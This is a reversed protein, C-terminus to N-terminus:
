GVFDQAPRNRNWRVDSGLLFFIHPRKLIAVKIELEQPSIRYLAATRKSRHFLTDRFPGLSIFCPPRTHMKRPALTGNITRGVPAHATCAQQRLKHKRISAHHTGSSFGLMLYSQMPTFGEVLQKAGM